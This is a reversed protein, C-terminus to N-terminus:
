WQIRGGTLGAFCGSDCILYTKESYKTSNKEDTSTYEKLIDTKTNCQENLM